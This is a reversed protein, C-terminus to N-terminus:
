YIKYQGSLALLAFFYLCNDYYRRKGTRPPTEWFRKVARSSLNRQEDTMTDNCFLALTSEAITAILGVPHKARRKCPRGDIHYDMLDDLTKSDFFRLQKEISRSLEPHVGGWLSDLGINAAVRYSDSYFTGHIRIPLPSGDYKAYEPALGTVSHCSALLYERSARAANIWFQKHEPEVHCAFQEYFHPLHYSPDTFSSDPVFRILYNGTNWMPHKGYVAAYLIAKAERSYDFIGDGDGWRDSAFFLAMAYYEEGDPAPGDSNKTGDPTCSWRFFGEYEGSDIYMWKRSWTWLRDFIDKRNMQVAMMMGYSMGETRVDENGTDEIYSSGDSTEFYFHGTNRASFITDWMSQLREEIDADKYGLIQFVNM